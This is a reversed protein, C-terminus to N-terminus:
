TYDFLTSFPASPLTGIACILHFLCQLATSALASQYIRV